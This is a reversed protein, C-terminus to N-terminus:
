FGSYVKVASGVQGIFHSWRVNVIKEKAEICVTDFFNLICIMDHDPSIHTQGTYPNSYGSKGARRYSYIRSARASLDPDSIAQRILDATRRTRGSKWNVYAIGWAGTALVVLLLIRIIDLVGTDSTEIIADAVLAAGDRVADGM